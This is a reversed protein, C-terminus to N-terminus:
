ADSQGQASQSTTNHETASLSFLLFILQLPASTLTFSADNHRLRGWGRKFAGRGGEREGRAEVRPSCSDSWGHQILRILISNVLDMLQESLWIPKKSTLEPDCWIRVWSLSPAEMKFLVRRPPSFSIRGRKRWYAFIFHHIKPPNQWTLHLRGMREM